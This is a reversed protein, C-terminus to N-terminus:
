RARSWMRGRTNPWLGLDPAQGGWLRGSRLFALRGNPRMLTTPCSMYSYEEGTAPTTRRAAAIHTGGGGVALPSSATCSNLPRRRRCCCSLPAAAAAAAAAPACLLLLRRVHGVSASLACAKAAGMSHAKAPSARTAPTRQRLRAYPAPTTAARLFDRPPGFARGAAGTCRREGRGGLRRSLARPAAFGGGSCGPAPDGTSGAATGCAAAQTARWPAPRRIAHIVPSKRSTSRAGAPDAAGQM